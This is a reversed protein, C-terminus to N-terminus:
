VGSLFQGQTMDQGLPPTPLYLYYKININIIKISVVNLSPKTISLLLDIKIVRKEICQFKSIKSVPSDTLKQFFSVRDVYHPWAFGYVESKKFLPHKKPQCSFAVDRRGTKSFRWRPLPNLYICIVSTM